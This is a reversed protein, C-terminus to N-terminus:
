ATILLPIENMLDVSITMVLHQTTLAPTTNLTTSLEWHLNPVKDPNLRLTTKQGFTQYNPINMIVNNTPLIYKADMIHAWNTDGGELKCVEVQNGKFSIVRYNGVYHPQFAKATHDKILVLDGEKLKTEVPKANDTLKAWALKLNRAVVDYINKLAQMSLINEDNGLYRVQPQILKNLPLIADRGFMLFFPSEKSHESPLFNYAACALPIVDDWEVQPM